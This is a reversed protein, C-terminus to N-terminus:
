YRMWSGTVRGICWRRAIRAREFNIKEKLINQTMLSEDVREHKSSDRNGPPANAESSTSSFRGPSM